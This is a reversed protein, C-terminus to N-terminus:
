HSVKDQQRRKGFSDGYEKIKFFEKIDEIFFGQFSNFCTSTAAVTEGLITKQNKGDFM